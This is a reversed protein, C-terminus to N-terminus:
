EYAGMQDFSGDDNFSFETYFGTYGGVLDSEQFRKDVFNTGVQISNRDYENPIFPVGWKNLLAELKERDTAM